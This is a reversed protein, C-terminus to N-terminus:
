KNCNRVPVPNLNLDRLRKALEEDMQYNEEPAPNLYNHDKALDQDMQPDEHVSSVDSVSKSFDEDLHRDEESLALATPFDHEDVEDELRSSTSGSTIVGWRQGEGEDDEPDAHYTGEGVVECQGGDWFRTEGDKEVFYSVPNERRWMIGAPNDFYNVYM